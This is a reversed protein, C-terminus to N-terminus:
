QVPSQASYASKPLSSIPCKSVSLTLKKVSFMQCDRPQSESAAFGEPTSRRSMKRASSELWNRLVAPVPAASWRPQDASMINGGAKATKISLTAMVGLIGPLWPLMLSWNLQNLDFSRSSIRHVSCTNRKIAESTIVCGPEGTRLWSHRRRTLPPHQRFRQRAGSSTLATGILWWPRPLCYQRSECDAMGRASRPEFRVVAPAPGNRVYSGGLPSQYRHEPRAHRAKRHPSQRRRQASRNVAQGFLDHRSVLSRSTATTM